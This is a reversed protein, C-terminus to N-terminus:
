GDRSPKRLVWRYGLVGHDAHGVGLASLDDLSENNQAGTLRTVRGHDFRQLVEDLVGYRGVLVRARDLEDVLERAGLGALQLAELQM